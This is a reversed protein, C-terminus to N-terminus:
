PEGAAKKGGFLGKLLDGKLKRGAEAVNEKLAGGIAKGREGTLASAAGLDLKDLGALGGRLDGLLDAPLGIGRKAVAQLVAHTVISTLQSIAVGGGDKSSIDHLSIEPITVDITDSDGPLSAVDLHAVVNRILLRKIILNKTSADSTDTAASADVTDSQLKQLNQLIADYNAGGEGKEISLYVGDLELLPVTITDELMRSLPLELTLRDLSFFNKAAFGPPNEVNLGELRFVGSSVGLSITDVSTPVGLAYTAGREIGTKAITDIYFVAGAIVGLVLLLSVILFKKM